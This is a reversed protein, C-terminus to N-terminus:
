AAGSRLLDRMDKSPKGLRIMGPRYNGLQIPVECRSCVYCWGVIDREIVEGSNIHTGGCAQYRATTLINLATPYWESMSGEAELM